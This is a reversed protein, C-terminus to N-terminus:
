PMEGLCAFPGKDFHAMPEIDHGDNRTFNGGLETYVIDARSIERFFVRKGFAFGLVMPVKSFHALMLGHWIKDMSVFWTSYSEDEPNRGKVELYAHIIRHDGVIAYDVRDQIRLKKQTLKSYMKAVIFAAAQNEHLLTQSNEYIPRM